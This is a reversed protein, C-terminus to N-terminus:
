GGALVTSVETLTRALAGRNAGHWARAAAAMTLRQEPAQWLTQVAAEL